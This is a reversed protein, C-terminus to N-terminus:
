RGPEQNRVFVKDIIKWDGGLKLLTLFDTYEGDFDFVVRAVENDVVDIALVVGNRSKADAAMWRGIADAIPEVRITGDETVSKLHASPDFARRLREEDRENLGDFYDFITARVADIDDDAIAPASVAFLAAALLTLISQAFPSRATLAHATQRTFM